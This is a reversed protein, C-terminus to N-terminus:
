DDLVWAIWVALWGMLLLPTPATAASWGVLAQGPWRRLRVLVEMVTGLRKFVQIVM